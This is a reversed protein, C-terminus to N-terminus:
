DVRNTALTGNCFRHMGTLAILDPLSVIFTYENDAQGDEYDIVGALRANEQCVQVSYDWNKGWYDMGVVEADPFCHAIKLTLPGNGCGIDLAKGWGPWRIQEVVWEQVRDQVNGGGASFLYWAIAFYAMVVLCLVAPILFVWDVATLLLFVVGLV